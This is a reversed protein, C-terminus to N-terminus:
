LPLTYWTASRHMARAVRKYWDWRTEDQVLDVALARIQQGDWEPPFAAVNRLLRAQLTRCFERVIRRQESRKM